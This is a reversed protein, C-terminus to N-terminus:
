TNWLQNFGPSDALFNHDEDDTQEDVFRARAIMEDRSNFQNLENSGYSTNEFKRAARYTVYHRATQPMETFDLGFVITAEIDTSFVYTHNARDYVRSGRTVPDTAGFRNRQIDVSLANAPIAIFGSVDRTLPFNKETNFLWGESQVARLVDTLTNKATVV